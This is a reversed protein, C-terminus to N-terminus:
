FARVGTGNRVASHLYPVIAEAAKRGDLILQVILPQGSGNNGNGSASLPTVTAGSPLSLREPGNEGVLVEGPDVITGGKALKPILPINMSWTDGGIVPVWSPINFKLGDLGKILTNIGGIISNLPSKVIGWLKGFADGVGSVLNKFANQIDKVVMDKLKGLHGLLDGIGDKLKGFWGLVNGIADIFGLLGTVLGAVINVILGIAPGIVHSFLWGLFQLIPNLIPLVHGAIDMLKTILKSLPPMLKQEIITAVNQITPWVDKEFVNVLTHVIPLVTNQLLDGLKVLIPHLNKEFATGLKLAAPVVNKAIFDGLQQVIPLVGKLLNGLISLQTGVNQSYAQGFQKAAPVVDQAIITAFGGIAQGIQQAVPAAQTLINNIQKVLGHFDLGPGKTGSFAHALADLGPKLSNLFVGAVIQAIHGIAPMDDMLPKLAPMLTGSVFKSVAQIGGALKDSLASALPTVLKLLTSLAPLLAVGVKEKTDEIQNKAIQLAGAFTKGAATASGGMETGLEGLIIKQADAADGVAMFHKIQDQQQTTLDVGVRRLATIGKVPDQLAKDLMQTASPLSIGMRTALDEAAMTAQPFINKGINTFTLTIGESQEIATKSFTTVKSYKEALAELSAVTEGSADHTSKLGAALQADAQQADMGAKVVDVLQDKLFSFAESALHAAGVGGAIALMNHLLGRLGGGGSGSGGGASDALTRIDKLHKEAETADVTVIAKLQLPTISM